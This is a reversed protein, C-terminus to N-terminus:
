CETNVSCVKCNDVSQCSNDVNLVCEGNVESTGSPCSEYCSGQHLIYGQNCSQCM